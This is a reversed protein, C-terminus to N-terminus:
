EQHGCARCRFKFSRIDVDKSISHMGCRPCNKFIDWEVRTYVVREAFNTACVSCHYWDGGEEEYAKAGCIPCTIFGMSQSNSGKCSGGGSVLELAEDPLPTKGSLYDQADQENIDKGLKEKALVIIEETTM